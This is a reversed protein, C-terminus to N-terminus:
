TGGRGGRRARVMRSWGGGERGPTRLGAVAPADQKDLTRGAVGAHASRGYGPGASCPMPLPTGLALLEEEAGAHPCRGSGPRVALGTDERWGRSACLPWLRPTSGLAHGGERGPSRLAAAAPTYQRVLSRGGVRPDIYHLACCLATRCLVRLTTCQVACHQTACCVCQVATRPVTCRAACLAAACCLVHRALRGPVCTRHRVVCLTCFLVAHMTGHLDRCLTACCLARLLTCHMVCHPAACRVCPPAASCLACRSTRCLVWPVSCCPACLTVCSLVACM